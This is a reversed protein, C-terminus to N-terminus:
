DDIKLLNRIGYAFLNPNNLLRRKCYPAAVAEAGFPLYMRVLVGSAALKKLHEECEAQNQGALSRFYNGSVLAKQLDARPVGLLFQTEFRDATLRKPLVVQKFFSEVCQSDHTALEVYVGKSILQEAYRILEEKMKTKDVYADSEPEPYIGIVLRVRMGESFREIDQKVRFLRSQLVTGLNRYGTKHLAFYTELQFDAWNRDEAELTLNVERRSAYDVIERIRTFAAAFQEASPSSSSPPGVSFMSPKMSVSLQKPQFGNAERSAVVQDITSMYMQTYAECDEPCKADEGLIDLTGCYRNVAILTAATQLAQQCNQGALYPRALLFILKPPLLNILSTFLNDKSNGMMQVSFWKM